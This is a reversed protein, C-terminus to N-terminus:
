GGLINWEPWGNAERHNDFIAQMDDRLGGLSDPMERIVSETNHLTRRMDRLAEYDADAAQKKAWVSDLSQEFITKKPPLKIEIKVPIDAVEELEGLIPFWKVGTDGEWVFHLKMAGEIVGVEEPTADKLHVTYFKLHPIGPGTVYIKHPWGYKFDAWEVATGETKLLVALASPAVSGCYSCREYGERMQYTHPAFQAAQPDKDHAITM